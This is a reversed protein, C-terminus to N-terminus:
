NDSILDDVTVAKKPAPTKAPETSTKVKPQVPATRAVPKSSATNTETSAIQTPTQTNANTNAAFSSEAQSALPDAAVPVPAESRQPQVPVEAQIQAPQETHPEGSGGLFMWGGVLLILIVAAAGAIMPIPLGSRKPEEFYSRSDAFGAVESVAEPDPTSVPEFVSPETVILIDDEDNFLASTAIDPEDDFLDELVPEPKVYPDPELRVPPDPAIRAPPAAVKAQQPPERRELIVPPGSTHPAASTSLGLLDDEFVPPQSSHTKAFAELTAREAAQERLLREAEAARKEAQVRLEEAERLKQELLDSQSNSSPATVGGLPQVIPAVPLPEPSVGGAAQRERVRVGATRLVQRMIVASDFRNERKIEMARMIVDSIEPAIRTDLEKPDTLPDKNGELLDISRELPDVPAVGTLLHYLTAGLSYIDSRADAPQKLVKESRDDYSGIIVKQSAADLGEWILELPSYNLGVSGTDDLSVELKSGAEDSVAHSFLKVKGDVSLRISSPAIRSHIIRPTLGHLYAVADLLQDAWVIVDSVDFPSSNTELLTQFDDGEVKELVLYQRGIDSFFDHVKVISGHQITALVAAKDAFATKMAEQQSLTTVKNMRLVIERLVVKTDSVTDYASLVSHDTPNDSPELRYRGEKFLEATTPM